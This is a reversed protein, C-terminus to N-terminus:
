RYPCPAGPRTCVPQPTNVPVIRLPDTMVSLDLVLLEPPHSANWVQQAGM